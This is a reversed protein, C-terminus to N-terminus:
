PELRKFQKLKDLDKDFSYGININVELALTVNMLDIFSSSKASAKLIELLKKGDRVQLGRTMLVGSIVVKKIEEWKVRKKQLFWILEAVVWETTWLSVLGNSAKKFLNTSKIYKQNDINFLSYIFINTDVFLLHEM